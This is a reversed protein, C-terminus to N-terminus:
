FGPHSPPLTHQQTSNSGPKDDDDVQLFFWLTLVRTPGHIQAPFPKENMGALTSREPSFRVRQHFIQPNQFENENLITYFVELLEHPVGYGM